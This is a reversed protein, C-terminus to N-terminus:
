TIMFTIVIFRLPTMFSGFKMAAWGVTEFCKMEVWVHCWWLSALHFTRPDGFDDPNVRQDVHIDTRFRKTIWVTCTSINSDPGSHLRALRSDVGREFFSVPSSISVSLSFSFNSLTTNDCLSCKVKNVNKGHCSIKWDLWNSWLQSPFSHDIDGIWLFFHTFCSLSIM